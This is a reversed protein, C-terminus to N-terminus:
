KVQRVPAAARIQCIFHGDETLVDMPSQHRDSLNYAIKLASDFPLLAPSPTDYKPDLLLNGDVWRGPGGAAEHFFRDDVQSRIMYRM